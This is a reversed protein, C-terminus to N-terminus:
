REGSVAEEDQKAAGLVQSNKLASLEAEVALEDERTDFASEVPMNCGDHLDALADAQAEAFEVKEIMREFQAFANGPRSAGASVTEFRQRAHAVRNRAALTALKRKAENHKARMAQVQLTLSEGTKRAATLQDRLAQVLKTHEMKRRIARRALEDDSSQVAQEARAHWCAVEQEHSVLEKMALKESAIAKAASAMVADILTEMERIAQKLMKEPDEFRDVLDNLNATIIDNVRRFLGM